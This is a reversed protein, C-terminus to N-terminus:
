YKGDVRPLYGMSEGTPSGAIFGFGDATFTTMARIYATADGPTGTGKIQTWTIDPDVISDDLRTSWITHGPVPTAVEGMFADGDSEYMYLTITGEADSINTIAYASWFYTGNAPTFYPYLLTTPATDPECGFTGIEIEEDLITGCPYQAVILRVSVVDGEQVIATDYRFSPLALRLYTQGDARTIGLGNAETTARIVKNECDVTCGSGGPTVDSADGCGGPGGYTDFPLDTLEAPSDGCIDDLSDTALYEMFSQAIYVGQDGTLGNVKVEISIQYDNEPFPTTLAQVIIKNNQHTGPCYNIGDDDFDFAPCEATQGEGLIINGVVPADKCTVLAYENAALIRAIEREGTFTLKNDATQPISDPTVEVREGQYDFTETDICIVNDAAIIPETFDREATDPDDKLIDTGQVQIQEDFLAITAAPDATVTVTFAEDTYFDSEADLSGLTMTVILSGATGEVLFGPTGAPAVDVAFDPTLPIFFEINRCLVVGNQLTFQVVDGAEMVTDLNFELSITGAQYCLSKPINPVSTKLEVRQAVAFASTAFTVVAFVAILSSIIGKKMM